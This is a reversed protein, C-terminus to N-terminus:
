IVQLHLITRTQADVKGTEAARLAPVWIIHDGSLVLPYKKRAAAPVHQNIFFDSCKIHHGNMGIPLFLDGPKFVRMTLPQALKEADFWAQNPDDLVVSLPQDTQFTEIKIKRHDNLLVEGTLPLTMPASADISLWDGYWGKANSKHIVLEDGTKELWLDTLLHIRQSRSPRELFELAREVCEFDIDRLSPLIHQIARRIMNRKLGIDLPIIKSWSLVVAGPYLRLLIESWTDQTIHNILEFDSELGAAMRWIVPKIQPNYVSLYPILQHRIRNRFYTVDMNTQDIVPDLHKDEIYALVEERWVGLLPRILPIKEDWEPLIHHYVMGKLGSLGAGRLLHMLVTEVQDDATHAVAVAEAHQNHATEFLFRYRCLRAAEEISLKADEAYAKVQGEGSFFPIGNADCYAKVKLCDETSEPRLHHDFHAVYVLIGAKHLCDVLCLSDPGGSVGVIIPQESSIKCKEILLRRDPFLDKMLQNTKVNENASSFCSETRKEM